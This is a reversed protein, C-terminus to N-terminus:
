NVHWGKRLKRASHTMRFPKPALGFDGVKLKWKRTACQLVACHLRPNLVGRDCAAQLTSNEAEAQRESSGELNGLTYNRFGGFWKKPPANNSDPKGIHQFTILRNDYSVFGVGMVNTSGSRQQM